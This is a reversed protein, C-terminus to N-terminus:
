DNRIRAITARGLGTVRAIARDSYGNSILHQVRARIERRGIERRFSELTPVEVRVGAHTSKLDDTRDGLIGRLENPLVGRVPIYIRHGGLENALQQVKPIGFRDIWEGISM